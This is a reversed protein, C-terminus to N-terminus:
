WVTQALGAGDGRGGGAQMEVFCQQRRQAGLADREAVDRQVHAGAGELRHPHIFQGFVAHVALPQVDAGRQDFLDALGPRAAAADDGDAGGDHAREFRGHAVAFQLGEGPFGRDEDQGAVADAADIRQQGVEVQRLARQEHQNGREGAARM